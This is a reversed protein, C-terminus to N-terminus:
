HWFCTLLIYDGIQYTVLFLTVTKRESWSFDVFGLEYSDLEVARLDFYSVARSHAVDVIEGAVIEANPDCPPM